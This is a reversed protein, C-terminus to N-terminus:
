ASPIWSLFSSNCHCLTLNFDKRGTTGEAIGYNLEDPFQGTVAALDLNIVQPLATFGIDASVFGSLISNM